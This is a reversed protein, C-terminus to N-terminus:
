KAYEALEKLSVNFDRKELLFTREYLKNHEANELWVYGVYKEPIVKYDMTVLFIVRHEGGLSDKFINDFEFDQDTVHGMVYKAYKYMEIFANSPTERVIESM